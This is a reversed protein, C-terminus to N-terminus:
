NLANKKYWEMRKLALELDREPTKQTKKIIAHLLVYTDNVHAFYFIRYNETHTKVRLEFLKNGLYKVFPERLKYGHLKLLNITRDIYSKTKEDLSHLFSLVHEIIVVNHM